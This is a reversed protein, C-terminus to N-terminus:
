FLVRTKVWDFVGHFWVYGISRRGCDIRPIVSAGPRLEEIEDEDLAVTVLVTAEGDSGVTTNMAIDQIHGEYTVNSNTALVFDVKLPEDSQKQADLVHGIDRDPVHIELVWSGKLDAVKMMLQGRKVPRDLLLDEVDWTLVQGAIPSKIELLTRQEDLISQLEELSKLQANLEQEQATLENRTEIADAASMDLSLRKGLLGNRAERKSLIEGTVRAYEFELDVNRLKLLQDDKAVDKGHSKPPEDVVGDIAAFIDRRLEPQLEGRGAVEFDAPVFVLACIAGVLLLLVLVTRSLREGFVARRASRLARLVGLLPLSEYEDVNQLALGAHRAVVATRNEILEADRSADYCEVILAGIPRADTTPAAQGTADNHDVASRRSFVPVVGLVRPASEALYDDAADQLKPPLNEAGGHLWISEGTESVVAALQEASRIVNSRRNVSDVGSVALVQARRGHVRAVSLRDCDIMRRGDSAIAYSVRNGDLSGHLSSAFDEYTQWREARDEVRRLSRQSYFEGAIEAMTEVFRLYGAHAAPSGGSRQFLELIGVPQDEHRVPCGVILSDTPNLILGGNSDATAVDASGEITGHDSATSYGSRPGVTRGATAERLERLLKQHGVHEEVGSPLGAQYASAIADGDVLWFAGGNAALGQVSREVLERHFDRADVSSKALSALEDILSEIEQFDKEQDTAASM